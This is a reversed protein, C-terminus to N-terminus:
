WCIATHLADEDEIEGKRKQVDKEVQVALAKPFSLIHIRQWSRNDVSINQMCFPYIETTLHTEVVVLITILKVNKM